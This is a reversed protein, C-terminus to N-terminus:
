KAMTGCIDEFYPGAREGHMCVLTDIVIITNAVSESLENADKKNKGKKQLHSLTLSLFPIVSLM